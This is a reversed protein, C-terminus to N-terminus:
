GRVHLPWGEVVLVHLAGCLLQAWCRVIPLLLLRVWDGSALVTAPVVQWRVVCRGVVNWGVQVVRGAVGPLLLLLLRPLRRGVALAPARPLVAVVAGGRAVPLWGGRAVAGSTGRVVGPWGVTGRAVPGVRRRGGHVVVEGRLLLLM